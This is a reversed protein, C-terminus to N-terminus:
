KLEGNIDAASENTALATKSESIIKDAEALLQDTGGSVKSEVAQLLNQLMRQATEDLQEGTLKNLTQLLEAKQKDQDEPSANLWDSIKKLADALFQGSTPTGSGQESIEKLGAESMLWNQFVGQSSKMTKAATGATTQLLPGALELLKM